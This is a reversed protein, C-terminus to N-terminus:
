ENSDLLEVNIGFIAALRIRLDDMFAGDTVKGALEGQRAVPDVGRMQTLIATGQLNCDNQNAELQPFLRMISGKGETVPIVLVTSSVANLAQPSIVICRRRKQTEGGATPDLTIYLIDGAELQKRQNDNIKTAM